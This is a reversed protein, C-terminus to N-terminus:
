FPPKGGVLAGSDWTNLGRVLDAVAENAETARCKTPSWVIVGILLVCGDRTNTWLCCAGSFGGKRANRASTVDM